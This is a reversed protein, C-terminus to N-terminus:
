DSGLVKGLSLENFIFERVSKRRVIINFSQYTFCSKLGIYAMSIKSTEMKLYPTLQQM